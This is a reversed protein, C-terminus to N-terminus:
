TKKLTTHLRDAVYQMPLLAYDKPLPACQYNQKINLAAMKAINDSTCEDYDM